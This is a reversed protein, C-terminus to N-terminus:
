PNPVSLEPYSKAMSFGYLPKNVGNHCTACNTKYVDGTPGKRNAPFVGALPTIYNANIDRVMQIGHWATVRQPRSQEWNSFARSNHCFTCNVGLGTSMHMMLAYTTETKKFEPGPNGPLATTAQVRIAGGPESILPTFPDYPLSAFAPVPQGALNQGNRSAAFGGAQRPGPNTFWINAPVANGRHCTYCTVGTQAVHAKYQTNIARTMQLMRRAVVKTYVEDSAMNEVNHCYACGANDGEQPAVWLTIAGMLRNFQATDLDGLVQVNKYNEHDDRVLVGDNPVPDDPTPLPNAAKVRAALRPNVIHEMGLGRFGWQASEMPPREWQLMMPIVLLTGIVTVLLSATLTTASLKM